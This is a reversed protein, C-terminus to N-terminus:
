VRTLSQITKVQPIYRILWFFFEGIRRNQPIGFYTKEVSNSRIYSASLNCIFDRGGFNFVQGKWFDSWLQHMKIDWIFWESLSSLPFQGHKFIFLEGVCAEHFTQFRLKWSHGKLVRKSQIYYSAKKGGDFTNVYAVSIGGIETESFRLLFTGSNCGRLIDHADNKSIFGAVRRYCFDTFNM